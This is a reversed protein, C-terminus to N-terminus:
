PDNRKVREAHLQNLLKNPEYYYPNEEAGLEPDYQIIPVIQVMELECGGAITSMINNTNIDNENAPAPNIGLSDGNQAALMQQRTRKIPPESESPLASQHCRKRRAVVRPM